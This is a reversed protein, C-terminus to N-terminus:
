INFQDKSVYVNGEFAAAQGTSNNNKVSLTAVSNSNNTFNGASATGNTGVNLAPATSLPNNIYINGASGSGTTFIDVASGSGNTNVGFAVNPSQPNDIRFMGASGIGYVASIIGHGTGTTSTLIAPSNNNENNILFHAASGTGNTSVNLASNNNSPNIIQLQAASGTGTTNAYLAANSNTSNIIKFVGAWGPAGTAYGYVATGAVTSGVLSAFNSSPNTTNFVGARGMGTNTIEFVPTASSTSGSYPLAIPPVWLNLTQSPTTGTITAAVPGTVVTGISLTNAPGPPGVPGQVQAKSQVSGDSFVLDGGDQIRLDGKVITNAFAASFATLLFCGIIISKMKM